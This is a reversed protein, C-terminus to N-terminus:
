TKRLSCSIRIMMENPSLEMFQVSHTLYFSMCFTYLPLNRPGPNSFWQRLQFDVTKERAVYAPNRKFEVGALECEDREEKKSLWM